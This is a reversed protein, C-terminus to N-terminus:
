LIYYMAFIAGSLLSLYATKKQLWTLATLEIFILRIGNFAHFGLSVVAIYVFIDNRLFEIIISDEISLYFSVLSNTFIHQTLFLLIILGTVRHLIFMFHGAQRNHIFDTFLNQFNFAIRWWKGHLSEGIIGWLGNLGHAVACFIFLSDFVLKRTLPSNFLHLYLGALLYLATVLQLLWLILGPM